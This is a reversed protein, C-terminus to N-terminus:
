HSNVKSTLVVNLSTSSTKVNQTVKRVNESTLSRQVDSPREGRMLGSWLRRIKPNRLCYMLFTYLGQFCGIICFLYQFAIEDEKITVLVGFIWTLGFLIVFGLVVRLRDKLPIVHVSYKQSKKGLSKAIAGIAIINVLIIVAFPVMVTIYFPMSHVICSFSIGNNVM